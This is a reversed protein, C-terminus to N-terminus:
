AYSIESPGVGSPVPQVTENALAEDGAVTATETIQMAAQHHGTRGRHSLVPKLSLAANPPRSDGATQNDPSGPALGARKSVGSWV